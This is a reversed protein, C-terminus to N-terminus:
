KFCFSINHQSTVRWKVDLNQNVLQFAIFFTQTNYVNFIFFFFHFFFDNWIMIMGRKHSWSESNFSINDVVGWWWIIDFSIYLNHMFHQFFNFSRPISVACIEKMYYNIPVLDRKNFIILMWSLMYQYLFVCLM